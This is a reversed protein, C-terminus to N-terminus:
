RDHFKRHSSGASSHVSQAALPRGTGSSDPTSSRRLHTATAIIAAEAAVIAEAHKRVEEGLETLVFEGHARRFLAAGVRTEIANVHTSITSLARHTATAAATTTGYECLALFSHIRPDTLM